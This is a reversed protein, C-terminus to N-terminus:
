VCTISLVKMEAFLVNTSLLFYDNRDHPMRGKELRALSYMFINFSHLGHSPIFILFAYRPFSQCSSKKIIIQLNNDHWLEAKLAEHARM